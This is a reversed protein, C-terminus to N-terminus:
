SVRRDDYLSLTGTKFGDCAFSRMEAGPKNLDVCDLLWGPTPHLATAGWWARLPRLCRLSVIGAHNAYVCQFAHWRADRLARLIPTDDKPAAAVSTILAAADPWRSRYLATILPLDAFSCDNRWERIVAEAWVDDEKLARAVESSSIGMLTLRAM